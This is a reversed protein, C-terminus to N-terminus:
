LVEKQFWWDPFADGMTYLYLGHKEVYADVVPKVEIQIPEGDILAIESGVYVDGEAYDHGGVWYGPLVLKSYNEIDREVYEAYHNGDIYVFHLNRPLLPFAEDSTMKWWTVRDAFPAVREGAEKRAGLLNKRALDRYDEDEYNYPDILHLMEINLNNLIYESGEGRFVGVEAGRVLMDGFIEKLFDVMYLRRKGMVVKELSQLSWHSKFGCGGSQCGLM